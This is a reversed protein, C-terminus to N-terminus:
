IYKISTSVSINRPTIDVMVNLNDKDVINQLALRIFQAASYGLIEAYKAATKPRVSKRDHEIDCLQQRSIGLRNAFKIQTEEEGIRISYILKGLTLQGCIKDMFQISHKISM